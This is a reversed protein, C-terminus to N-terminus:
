LMMDCAKNSQATPHQNSPTICSSSLLLMVEERFAVITSSCPAAESRWAVIVLLSEAEAAASM